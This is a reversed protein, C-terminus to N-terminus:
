RNASDTASLSAIVNVKVYHDKSGTVVSECSNSIGPLGMTMVHGTHGSMKGVVSYRFSVFFIYYFLYIAIEILSLCAESQIISLM